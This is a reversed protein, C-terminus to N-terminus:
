KVHGNGDSEVGARERSEKRFNGLRRADGEFSCIRPDHREQTSIHQVCDSDRQQSLGRAWSISPYQLVICQLLIEMFPYRNGSYRERAHRCFVPLCARHLDRCDSRISRRRHWSQITPLSIRSDQYCGHQQRALWGSLGNHQNTRSHFCQERDTWCLIDWVHNARM